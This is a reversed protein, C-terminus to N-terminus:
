RGYDSAGAWEAVCTLNLLVRIIAAAEGANTVGRTRVVISAHAVGREGAWREAGEYLQTGPIAIYIDTERRQKTSEICYEEKERKRSMRSRKM